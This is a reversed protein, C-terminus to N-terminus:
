PFPAPLGSLVKPPFHISATRVPATPKEPSATSLPLATAAGTRFHAALSHSVMEHDYVSWDATASLNFYQEPTIDLRAYVPSFPEQTEGNKWELPDDEYAEIIDYSQGIDFRAFQHYRYAPDSGTTRDDRLDPRRLVFLNTLSYTVENEAEIRDISDFDPYDTQDYDPIYSYNIRPTLTHKLRNQSSNFIRYIESSLNLASTTCKGTSFNTRM